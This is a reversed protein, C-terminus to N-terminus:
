FNQISCLDTAPNFEKLEFNYAGGFSIEQLATKIVNFDIGGKGPLLHEDTLGHNDHLHVALLRDGYLKITEAPNGGALNLHGTDLCFGVYSSDIDLIYNNLNKPQSVYILRIKKEDWDYINELAIRVNYRKLYPILKKFFLVNFRKEQEDINQHRDPPFVLPHVVLIRCHLIAAIMVTRKLLKFYDDFLYEPFTVYKAHMQYFSINKSFAYKYLKEYHKKVSQWPNTYFPYYRGDVTLDLCNFGYQQVCDIMAFENTGAIKLLSNSNIGTKM